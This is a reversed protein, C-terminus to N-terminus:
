ENPQWEDLLSDIEDQPKTEIGLQHCEDVLCDILRAMEKSDYSSSGHFVQITHGDFNKCPGCDIAVWGLGKAQWKRLFDDTHETQVAVYQFAQCDTIAKKYVENRSNYVGNKSLEEAIKQCLVWAYGNANLSRKGRKQKVSITYTVGKKVEFNSGRPFPMLLGIGDVITINDTDFQIM